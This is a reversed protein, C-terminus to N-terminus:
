VAANESADCGHELILARNIQNREGHFETAQILELTTPPECVDGRQDIVRQRFVEAIVHTGNASRCEFPLKFAL